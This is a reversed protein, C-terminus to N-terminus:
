AVRRVLEEDIAQLLRALAGGVDAAGGELLEDLASARAGIHEFGFAGATGALRHVIAEFAAADGGAGLALRDEALRELFRRRLPEVTAGLPGAAAASEPARAAMACLLESEDIPKSLCGDMGAAFCAAVQEPRVGATLAIIPTARSAGEARIRRAAELGDMRPMRIDMFILDFRTQGCRAVAQAGDTAVEVLHGSRTLILAALECNLDVDDVVLIHQPPPAAAPATPPDPKEATVAKPLTLTVSVITGAGVESDLELSAGMVEALRKVIALGLGSGEVGAQAAGAQAFREFIRKRDEPAIGVGTDSVELRVRQTEVADSELAARLSVAGARSYKIANSALNLAIQRLRDRDGRLLAIAEDAHFHVKLGKDDAIPASIAAIEALLDQFSFPAEHLVIQGRDLAATDLVDNVISLTAESSTEVLRAFRRDRPTLAGSQALLRSYGVVSNLPTRLEHSMNALFEERAQAMREAREVAEALAANAKLADDRARSVERLLQHRQAIVM